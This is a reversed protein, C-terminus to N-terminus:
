LKRLIIKIIKSIVKFNRSIHAQNRHSDSMRLSKKHNLIINTVKSNETELDDYEEFNSDYTSCSSSDADDVGENEQVRLTMQDKISKRKIMENHNDVIKQSYELNAIKQDIASENIFIKDFKGEKMQKYFHDLNSPLSQSGLSLIEELKTGSDQVGFNKIM